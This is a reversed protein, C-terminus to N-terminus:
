PTVVPGPWLFVIACGTAFLGVVFLWYAPAYITNHALSVVDWGVSGTGAPITQRTIRAIWWFSFVLYAVTGFLSLGIGLLIAKLTTM